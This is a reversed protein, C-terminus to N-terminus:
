LGFVNVQRNELSIEWNTTLSDVILVIEDYSPRVGGFLSTYSNNRSDNNVM